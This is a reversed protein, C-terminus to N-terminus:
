KATAKTYIQILEITSSQKLSKQTEPHKTVGIEKLANRFWKKEGYGYNQVNPNKVQM